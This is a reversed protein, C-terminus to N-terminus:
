FIDLFWKKGLGVNWFTIVWLINSISHHGNCLINQMHYLNVFCMFISMQFFSKPQTKGYVNSFPAWLSFRSQWLTVGEIDRPVSRVPIRVQSRLPTLRKIKGSCSAGPVLYL